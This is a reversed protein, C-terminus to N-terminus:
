SGRYVLRRVLALFYKFESTKFTFIFVLLNPIILCAVAKLALDLVGNSLSIHNTVIFTAFMSLLYIGIYSWYKIYFRSFNKKFVLKFLLYPDYWQTILRSVITALITGFIGFKKILLISLIVNLIATVLPRYQGQIFLSNATRFSAVAQLLVYLFFDFAVVFAINNAMIYKEGLWVNIFPSSLIFLSVCCFNCAVFSIYFVNNFIEYQKEIKKEAVLNGISPTIAIFFQKLIKSVQEKLLTYNALYGVLGTGLVASILISDIGNGISGSIKYMSVGKVDKLLSFVEGKNLKQDPKKFACDYSKEAKRTVIYNQIITAILEVVLYLMFDKFVILGVIEIAYRVVQCIMELYKVVYIKQDAKLITTKYILLYSAATKAIYMIYVIRIDEVIDPVDTIIYNLFPVLLLGALLIFVAVFRYATRYFWMLQRIRKDNKEKLPIYLATAIATGLGLESLSLMSLISTFVGSVGTYQIGLQHILASRLAFGLFITLIQDVIGVATNIATNKVRSNRGM